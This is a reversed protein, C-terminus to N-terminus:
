DLAELNEIEKLHGSQKINGEFRGRDIEVRRMMRGRNRYHRAM